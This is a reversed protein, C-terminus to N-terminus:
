LGLDDLMEHIQQKQDAQQASSHLQEFQDFLRKRREYAALKDILQTKQIGFSEGSFRDMQQQAYKKGLNAFISQSTNNRTPAQVSQSTATFSENSQGTPLNDTEGLDIDFESCDAKCGDNSLNNGDDCAEYISVVGDGCGLERRYAISSMRASSGGHKMEDYYSAERECSSDCGDGDVTNGDDCREGIQPSVIGDGCFLYVCSGDDIVASADYNQAAPDTCGESQCINSCGDGSVLNGDDCYEGPEQIGNGCTVGVELLLLCSGTQNAGSFSNQVILEPYYASTM